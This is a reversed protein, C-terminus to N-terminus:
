GAHIDIAKGYVPCAERCLGCGNCVDFNIVPKTLDLHMANIPCAPVCAGCEPGSFPMCKSEDIEALGFFMAHPEVPVLAGTTCAKACPIDPCLHCPTQNTNLAPTGAWEGGDAPIIGIAYYPCAVACDDCRTCLRLFEGEEAAGPPLPWPSAV